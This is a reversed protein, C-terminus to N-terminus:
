EYNLYIKIKILLNTLLLPMFLNMSIGNIANELEIVISIFDASPYKSMVKKMESILPTHHLPDKIEKQLRNVSQFWVKLLMFHNIFKNVDQKAYKSYNQIFLRWDDPNDKTTTNVLGSILEILAPVSQSIFFQAHQINGRSLGSLLLIDERNVMKSKFWSEIYSNKLKAFSIGQCRSIITLPILNIYDTVLIFTTRSPPEELLKLFANATEGQGVALLHADFILVVKIGNSERSLYLTNRLNRISSIPIRNANPIKVKYFLDKSKKNIENNIIDFDNDPNSKKNIPIPFIINIDEHQLSKSRFCSACSGCVNKTRSECNLLQALKIAIGEKGCGPPGSFLYANGIKQSLTIKQIKEWIYSQANIIPDIEKDVM